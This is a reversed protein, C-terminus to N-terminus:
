RRRRATITGYGTCTGASFTAEGVLYYTTTSALSLRVLPVGITMTDSSTTMVITQTTQQDQTAFANTSSNIGGEQVGTAVTTASSFALDVFGEVDWDGATLSISTITKPTANSLSVASGSAIQSTIVEGVSGANVNNNTTTGIIGTTQNPYIGKSTFMNFGNGNIYAVISNNQGFVINHNTTNWVALDYANGSGTIASSTSNDLGIYAPGGTNSFQFAAANVGANVTTVETVSGSSTGVTAITFAGTSPTTNGIAPPTAWTQNVAGLWNADLNSVMTTSTVVLPATGTSVTSTLQNGTVTGGAYVNGAGIGVNTAATGNGITVAGTTSSSASTTATFNNSSGGFTSAGTSTKFAGTSGSFDNAGSGSATLGGSIVPTTLTWSVITGTAGAAFVYSTISSNGFVFQNSATLTAQYGLATSNTFGDAGASTGYGLFTSNSTTVSTGAANQGIATNNGATNLNLASYGVATNNNGTSNTYLAGNGVATNDSGTLNTYGSTYGVYVNNVGTTSTFGARWGLSDNPGKTANLFSQTGVVTSPTNNTHLTAMAQFGIAVSNDDQSNEGAYMGLWTNNSHTAQFEGAGYGIAVNETGTTESQLSATGVATNSYGNTMAYMSAYGIATNEASTGNFSILADLGVATNEVGTTNTALASYGIAVNGYGTTNSWMSKWGLATNQNGTTQVGLSYYGIGTNDAGTTASNGANQGYFYNQLNTQYFLYTAGVTINGSADTNLTGASTYYKPMHLQGAGDWKFIINSSTDLGEAVYDSANTGAEIQVGYATSTSGASEVFLSQQGNHGFIKVPIYSGNSTFSNAGTYSGSYTFDQSITGSSTIPGGTLGAGTAVSTVVGSGITNNYFAVNGNSDFGLLKSKRSVLSLVPSLTEFNEFQLSRSAVENVQQSLTAMKDLAQEVMTITLPGTSGFSTIQNIPVGRMIVIQDNVIVTNAGTGVVIISGVMMGNAGNYGGGSVTYDSGLTLAVAPDRAASVTGMDLVVLDTQSQFPFGTPITQPFGSITTPGTKDTQSTISGFSLLPIFLLAVRLLHKM